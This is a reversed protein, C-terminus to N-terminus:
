EEQEINNTQFKIAKQLLLKYNWHYHRSCVYFDKVDHSIEKSTPLEGAPSCTTCNWLSVENYAVTGKPIWYVESDYCILGDKSSQIASRCELIFYSPIPSWNDDYSNDDDEIQGNRVSWAEWYEENKVSLINSKIRMHQLVFGTAFKEKAISIVNWKIKHDVDDKCSIVRYYDM